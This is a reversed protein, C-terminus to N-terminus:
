CNNQQQQNQQDEEIIIRRGPIMMCSGIQAMSLSDTIKTRSFSKNSPSLPDNKLMHIFSYGLWINQITFSQFM